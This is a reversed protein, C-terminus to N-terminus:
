GRLAGRPLEIVRGCEGTSKILANKDFHVLLHEVLVEFADANVPAAALLDRMRLM